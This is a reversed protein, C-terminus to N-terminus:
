LYKAVLKKLKKQLTIFTMQLSLVIQSIFLKYKKLQVAVENFIHKIEIVEYYLCDFVLCFTFFCHNRFLFVYM